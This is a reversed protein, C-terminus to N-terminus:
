SRAELVRELWPDCKKAWRISAAWDVQTYRREHERRPHPQLMKDSVETSSQYSYRRILLTFQGVRDIVQTLDGFDCCVSSAVRDSEACPGVSHRWAEVPVNGLLRLAGGNVSLTLM